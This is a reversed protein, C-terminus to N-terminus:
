WFMGSKNSKMQVERDFFGGAIKNSIKHWGGGPRILYFSFNGFRWM